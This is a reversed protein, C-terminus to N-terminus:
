HAASAPAAAKRWVIRRMFAACACGDFKPALLMTDGVAVRGSVVTGTVITGQGSLTFLVISRSVSCAM